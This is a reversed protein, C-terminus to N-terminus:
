KWDKLKNIFKTMNNIQQTMQKATRYFRKYFSTAHGEMDVSLADKSAQLLGVVADVFKNTQDDEYYEYLEEKILKKLKEINEKKPAKEPLGKTDTKAYDKVDKKKMTKAVKAVAKSAPKEGKQAAHVMGMFRQQKKSVAKEDLEMENDACEKKLTEVDIKYKRHLAKSIDSITSGKYKGPYKLWDKYIAILDDKNYKDTNM